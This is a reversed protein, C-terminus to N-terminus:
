KVPVYKMVKSSGDTYVTKEIVVENVGYPSAIQMGNVLYYSVKAVEKAADAGVENVGSSKYLTLNYTRVYSGVTLTLTADEGDVKASPTVTNGSIAINGTATWQAGSPIGVKFQKSVHELTENEALLVTAVNFNNVDVDKLNVLSPYTAEAYLYDDGLEAEVLEATTVGEIGSLNDHTFADNVNTDYYNNMLQLYKMSTNNSAINGVNTGTTVIEGANYCDEIKMTYLPSAANGPFGCIGALQNAASITGFNYCSYIYGRGDGVIGGAGYSTTTINGFNACRITVYTSDHVDYGRIGAVYYSKASIDGSNWCDITNAKGNGIIGGINAAVLSGSSSVGGATINGTNYCNEVTAGDSTIYGILGASNTYCTIDGTNYCNKFSIPATKSSTCDAFLGSVRIYGDSTAGTINGTNYCGIAMTGAKTSAAIGAAYGKAGSTLDATNYCNVLEFPEEATQTTSLAVIGALYQPTTIKGSNSSEYISSPLLAEGIVGAAYNTTATVSGENKANYVYASASGIVGGVKVTGTVTGKNSCEKVVIKAQAAASGLVGGAYSTKATVNGENSCNTISSGVYAIAAIGGANTTGYTSITGQNVCDSIKGYLHAVIGAAYTYANIASGKGLTISKIEGGASLTGFLARGLAEKNTTEALYSVNDFVKGNGDFAGAFTNAQVFEVDKFDLDNKVQFHYGQYDFEYQNMFEALGTFEKAETIIFPSQATGDGELALPNLALSGIPLKRTAGDLTAVLTDTDCGTEVKAVKLTAGDISFIKKNLLEWKVDAALTADSFIANAYQGAALTLVAKSNVAVQVPVTEYKMTPYVGPKVAFESDPLLNAANNTISDTLLAVCGVMDGNAVLGCKQIQADAICNKYTGLSNVGAIKGLSVKEASANVYGYNLANEVLAPKAATGTIKGVIGGVQKYSWVNGSNVVNTLTTSTVTGAIGGAGYQSAEKQYPNFWYAAVEGTNECNKILSEAAAEGVIGGATNANAYVGGNNYCNVVKGGSLYGVIGGGIGFYVRLTSYNACNEITGESYGAITGGRQFTHFQAKSGINLNKVVGDAGIAAFLGCNYYSNASKPDVQGPVATGTVNDATFFEVGLVVFNDLTYGKGDFNGQFKLSPALSNTKNKCVPVITDGEFDINNTLVFYKDAFPMTANSTINSFLKFEEKNRILWPNEATGEGEFMVPAINVIYYKSAAGRLAFITDTHQTTNLVGEGNSFGYAYGGEANQAGDKYGVWNVENATSYLFNKTINNVADGAQLTLPAVSVAVADNMTIDKLSPYLGKNFSWVDNSFKNLTEGSTLTETSVGGEGGELPAIQNDYYCNDVEAGKIEGIFARTAETSATEIMGSVYCNSITTVPTNDSVSATIKGVLGGCTTVAPNRVIGAFYCNDIVAEYADGVIGGVDCQSTGSNVVQATAMSTTLRTYSLAGLLGGVGIQVNSASVTGAFTCGSITPQEQELVVKTAHGVLGGAFVQKDSIVVRGTVHVNKIDYYSRGALGGAYGKASIVASNVTINSAPANLYGVLGGVNYGSTAYVKPNNITVNAVEGYTRGALVGATYGMTSVYPNNFTINSIKAPAGVIGFLGSYDYAYNNIVLNDISHGKGDLVGAFQYTTNGIPTYASQISDFDIDADLAFYKGSYVNYYTVTENGSGSTIAKGRLDTNTLVDESLMVFDKASKILYPKEATGEGELNFKVPKPYEVPENLTITTKEYSGFLSSVTNNAIGYGGLTITKNGANYTAEIPSLVSLSITIKGDAATTETMKFVSLDGLISYYSVPQPSVEMTNNSNLTVNLDSYEDMMPVYMVRLTKDGVPYAFAPTKQETVTRNAKTLDTSGDAGKYVVRNATINSNLSTIAAYELFGVGITAGAYTGTTIFFGFNDDIVISNGYVHGKIDAKSDYTNKYVNMKCIYAYGISTGAENTVSVMMQPKITVEGTAEDVTAKIDRANDGFIFGKLTVGTTGDKEVTVTTAVTAHSKYVSNSYVHMLTYRSGVLDDISVAEARTSVNGSVSELSSLDEETYRVSSTVHNLTVADAEKISENIHTVETFQAGQRTSETEVAFLGITACSLLFSLIIKKM